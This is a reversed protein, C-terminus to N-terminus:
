EPSYVGLYMEVSINSYATILVTYKTDSSSAPLTFDHWAMDIIQQSYIRSHDDYVDIRFSGIDSLIVNYTMANNAPVLWKNDGRSIDSLILTQNGPLYYPDPQYQYVKLGNGWNVLVPASTTQTSSTAAFATSPTTFFVTVLTLVIIKTLLRKIKMM